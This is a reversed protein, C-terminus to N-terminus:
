TPTTSGEGGRGLTAVSRAAVRPQFVCGRQPLLRPVERRQWLSIRFSVQWRRKGTFAEAAPNQSKASHVQHFNALRLAATHPAGVAVRRATRVRQIDAVRQPQTQSWLRAGNRASGDLAYDLQSNHGVDFQVNGAGHFDAL